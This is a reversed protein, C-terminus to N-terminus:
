VVEGNELIKFTKSYESSINTIIEQSSGCKKLFFIYEYFKPIIAKSFRNDSWDGRREFYYANTLEFGFMHLNELLAEVNTFHNPHGKIRANVEAELAMKDDPAYNDNKGSIM